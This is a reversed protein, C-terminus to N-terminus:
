DEAKVDRVSIEVNGCNTFVNLSPVRPGTRILNWRNFLKVQNRRKGKHFIADMELALRYSLIMSDAGEAHFTTFKLCTDNLVGIKGVYVVKGDIIKTSDRTAVKINNVEKDLAIQTIRIIRNLKIKENGHIRNLSDVMTRYRDNFQDRTLVITRAHGDKLNTMELEIASYNNEAVIRRQKQNLYAAGFGVTFLILILLVVGAILRIINKTSM